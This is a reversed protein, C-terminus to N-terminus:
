NPPHHVTHDQGAANPIAEPAKKMTGGQMRMMQEQMRTRQAALETIVAAMAALKTEGTAANMNAVLSNLKLDDAAMKAMMTKQDAANQGAMMACMPPKVPQAAGDHQGDATPTQAFAIVASLPAAVILAGIAVATRSLRTRKM